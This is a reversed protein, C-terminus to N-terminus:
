VMAYLRVLKVLDYKVLTYKNIEKAFPFLSNEISMPSKPRQISFSLPGWLTKLIPIQM